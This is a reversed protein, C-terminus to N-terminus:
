ALDLVEGAMRPMWGTAPLGATWGPLGSSRMPLFAQQGSDWGLGPQLILGVTWWHAADPRM